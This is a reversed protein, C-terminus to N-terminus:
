KEFAYNLYVMFLHKASRFEPREMVYRRPLDTYYRLDGDNDLTIVDCLFGNMQHLSDGVSVRDLPFCFFAFILSILIIIILM